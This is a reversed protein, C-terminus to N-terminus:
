NSKLGTETFAGTQSGSVADFLMVQNEPRAEDPFAFAYVVALNALRDEPTLLRFAPRLYVRPVGENLEIRSFLEDLILNKIIEKQEERGKSRAAALAATHVLSASSQASPMAQPAPQPAATSTPAAAPAASSAREAHEGTNGSNSSCATLLIGLTMMMAIVKTTVPLM